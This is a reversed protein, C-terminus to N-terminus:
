RGLAIANDPRRTQCVGSVAISVRGREMATNTTALAGNQGDPQHVPLTARLLRASPRRRQAHVDTPRRRSPLGTLALVFRETRGPKGHGQRM